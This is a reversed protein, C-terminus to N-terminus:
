CPDSQVPTQERTLSTELRVIRPIPNIRRQVQENTGQPIAQERSRTRAGFKRDVFFVGLKLSQEQVSENLVGAARFVVTHEWSSNLVCEVCGMNIQLVTNALVM